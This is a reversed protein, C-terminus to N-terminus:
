VVSSPPAPQAGARLADDVRDLIRELAGSRRAVLQRGAEGRRRRESEDGLLAECRRALAGADAVQELAGADRLAANVSEFNFGHPGVLVPVGQIAPEVPNHGGRPVLSGGVFVLQAAGCIELLVGMADVLVLSANAPVPGASWRAAEPGSDRCLQWVAEFRGPHRPVLVLRWDPHRHLLPVFAALLRAEEDDHTSAMVLLRRDAGLRARAGAVREPLDAPLLPDFKLSGTVETREPAAGLTRFREATAEDQCLIRDLDALMARSAAALRAYGRASRASLRANVLMVPVGARRCAALLNPWLETEMLLLLRPRARRLFAAQTWPLDWPLWAVTAEGAFLAEARERGAATTVTVLISREPHRRRLGRVLPAAAQVEGASVAHIWIAGPAQRPIRGFRGLPDRRYGPEHRGRLWQRVLVPPLALLHLLTYLPRWM